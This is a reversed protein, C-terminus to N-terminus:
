AGPRGWGDRVRFAPRRKLAAALRVLYSVGNVRGLTGLYGVLIKDEGIGMRRRFERGESPNRQFFELDSANPVVVIKERPYGAHVIGQAMGPSLAVVAASNSYSFRELMRAARRLIPNKLAGIAIPLEPWLDRVEFVMPIRRRRAAYVAPIAITLPTSTAFVVNGQIGRARRAARIAFEFFATLRGLHEYSQFIARAAM